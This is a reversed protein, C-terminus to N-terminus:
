VGYEGDGVPPTTRGERGCGRGQSRPTFPPPDLSISPPHSPFPTPTPLYPLSVLAPGDSSSAVSRMHARQQTPNTPDAVIGRPGTIQEYASTELVRVTYSLKAHFSLTHKCKLEPAPSTHPSFVSLASSSLFVSPVLFLWFLCRLLFFVFFHPSFAPSTRDTHSGSWSFFLMLPFTSVHVGPELPERSCPRDSRFMLNPSLYIMAALTLPSYKELVWSYLVPSVLVILPDCVDPSYKHFYRVVV